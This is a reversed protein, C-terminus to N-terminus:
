NAAVASDVTSRTLLGSERLLALARQVLEQHEPKNFWTSAGSPHPLPLYRVGDREFVRGVAEDLKVKGLMAEIAMGGVLLVLKPRVLEIQRDLFPRCNALEAPTPRRDGHGSGSPGPFCRTMAAMYVQRRFTEEEIGVSALWGFLRKGSPGSFPLGNNAETKGPAQGILLVRRAQALMEPTGGLIPAGEVHYGALACRRCALIEQHLAVLAAQRQPLDTEAL